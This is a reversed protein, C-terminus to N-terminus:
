ALYTHATYNHQWSEAKHVYNVRRYSRQINPTCSTNCWQNIEYKEFTRQTHKDSTAEILVVTPMEEASLEEHNSSYKPSIDAM